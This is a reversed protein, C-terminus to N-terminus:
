ADAFGSVAIQFEAFGHVYDCWWGPHPRFRGASIDEAVDLVTRYTLKRAYDDNSLVYSQLDPTKTKSVVDAIVTLPMNRALWFERYISQALAVYEDPPQQKSSTKLDAMLTALEPKSSDGYLADLRGQIAFPWPQVELMSLNFETAAVKGRQADLKLIRPVAFAALKAVHDKVEGLNAFKSGLDIELIDLPQGTEEDTPQAVEHDFWEAAVDVASVNLHDLRAHEVAKHVASGIPLNVSLPRPLKEIRSLRYCEGCYLFSTVQSPSLWGLNDETTNPFVYKTRTPTDIV